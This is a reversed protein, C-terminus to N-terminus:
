STRIKKCAVGNRCYWANAGLMEFGFHGVMGTFVTAIYYYVPAMKGDKEFNYRFLAMVLLAIFLFIIGVVFAEGVLETIM